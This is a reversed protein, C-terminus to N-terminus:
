YPNIAMISLVFPISSRVFHRSGRLVVIIVSTTLIRAAILM